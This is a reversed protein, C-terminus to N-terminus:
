SRIKAGFNLSLKLLIASIHANIEADTLTHEMSSFTLRITLSKLNEGISKGKYVDILKVDALDPAKAIGKEIDAWEFKDEMVVALDRWTNPFASVPRVQVSRAWFEPKYAAVLAKLPLEFYCIQNDKFDGNRATMPNILGMFGARSGGLKMELVAGPHFYPPPAAPKEFRFGGYGSFVASMVGKLHYFDASASGGRWFEAAPFAGYMLGACMTEECHGKETKRFINGTEFISVSTRGHNLNYKLSKLAGAVMATRLFQYDASLPNKLPVAEEENLLCNRFDKLSIFDYNYVESFGLGALRDKLEATVEYGPSPVARMMPMGSKAPIVDYGVFRAAEEAIDWVSEIDRRYSPVSFRWLVTEALDPQIARLCAFMDKGSIEAGLIANVREPRVEVVRPQYKVPYNDTVQTVKAGPVAELIIQAMRRAAYLTLEPDTGREFRYSSETRVGSKRSSLRVASPNFSASEILVATTDQSVASPLGGIVGALAAPRERDAIVLMDPDLKLEQGDLSRLTEGPAARRAAIEPGALRALDFCHAPQGLEYMVYNSVDILINNKPNSGMARLRGALWEPTKAAAVNEMVIGTYRPCLKPDEITVPVASGGAAFEPVSPKKFPLNYFACLERALAYHSLCYALNPTIEVELVCDPRAFLSAADVGLPTNEPLVLIGSDDYGELGLEGASCIMGESEVGRIKAKKLTGEALVAGVRAFLIKQGVAINKAGCVVRTVAAGDSVECLSLKDANPHKGITLIRGAVVGSFAAGTKKVEEINFGLRTLKVILEEVGLPAGIFDMLWSYQIKM